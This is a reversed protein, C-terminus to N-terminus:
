WYYKQREAWISEKYKGKLTRFWNARQEKAIKQQGCHNEGSTAFCNIARYLAYAKADKPAKPNDIVALSYDLRSYAKGTFNDSTEGLYRPPKNSASHTVNYFPFIDAFDYYFFLRFFEGVCNLAHADTNNKALTQVAKQLSPCTYPIDSDEIEANKPTEGTWQFHALEPFSPYNDIPYQQYIRLFENYQNHQLLKFLLTKLAVSKSQAEIHSANLLEELLSASAVRQILLHRLHKDTVLSDSAFVAKIKGRYEYHYALALQLQRKQIPHETHKFLDLYITVAKDLQQLKEFALARLIFTSFTLNNIPNKLTLTNTKSIVDAYNKQIFYSDALLLYTYLDTLNAQAFTAQLTQLETAPISQASEGEMTRMRTLIAVATFISPNWKIVDRMNALYSTDTPIEESYPFFLNHEVEDILNILQETSTTQQSQAIQTLAQTLKNQNKTLKYLRRFLGQASEAYIGEPYQKLYANFREETKTEDLQNLAVRGLMYLATEKLWTNEQNILKNFETEASTFDSSYFANVGQLYIAMAQALPNIVNINLITVTSPSLQCLNALSLRAEALLHKEEAPITTANLVTFFQAVANINNSICHAEKYGQLSYATTNLTEDSIGLQKALNTFSTNEPSNTITPAEGSIEAETPITPPPPNKADFIQTYYFPIEYATIHIDDTKAPLIDLSSIKLDELLLLLNIRTDNYPNLFYNGSLGESCGDSEIQQIEPTLKGGNDECSIDFSAGCFPSYCLSAILLYIYRM